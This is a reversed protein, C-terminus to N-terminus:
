HQTTCNFFHFSVIESVSISRNDILINLYNEPIVTMRKMVEIPISRLDKIPILWITDKLMTALSTEDMKALLPELQLKLVELISANISSSSSELSNLFEFAPKCRPYVPSLQQHLNSITTWPDTGAASLSNVIHKRGSDGVLSSNEKISARIISTHEDMM